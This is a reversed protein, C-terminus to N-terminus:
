EDIPEQELAAFFLEYADNQGDLLPSNEGGGNTSRKIEAYFEEGANVLEMEYIEYGLERCKRCFAGLPNEAKRTELLEKRLKEDSMAQRQLKDLLEITNM